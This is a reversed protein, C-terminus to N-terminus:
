KRSLNRQLKTLKKKNLQKYPRYNPAANNSNDIYLNSPSFDLGISNSLRINQKLDQEKEFIVSCYYEGCANKSVTMSLPVAGLFWEIWKSKLSSNAIRFKIYRLKSIFITRSNFDVLDKERIM